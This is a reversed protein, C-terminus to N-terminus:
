AFGSVPETSYSDTTGHRRIISGYDGLCHYKYVQLNFKRPLPEDAEEMHNSQHDMSLASPLDTSAKTGKAKKLKRRKRAAVERPLEQTDFASCTKNSFARFESGMEITVDDLMKLTPDTHMRLKALGHWHACIFLLHLITSNHPEPLLGEFVPIACKLSFKLM